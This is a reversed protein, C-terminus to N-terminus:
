RLLLSQHFFTVQIILIVLQLKMLVKKMKLIYKLNLDEYNPPYESLCNMLGFQIKRTLLISYTENIEEHTSMGTSLIMPKKFESIKKITPHDSLEGSGIKFGCVNLSMLEKAARYSFPTCLYTIGIKECHEKLIKHDSLKLANKKLFEYLSEDFNNSKPVDQLMEEDPLHHQFKIVDAGAKKSLEIMKKAKDISGFHNDCAEAIILINKESFKKHNLEFYNM